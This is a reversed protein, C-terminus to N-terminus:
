ILERCKLVEGTISLTGCVIIAKNNDSSKSLSIADMLASKVDTRAEADIGKEIFLEALKDRSLARPNKSEVTYVYYATPALIEIMKDYEKDALVSIIYIFKDNTFYKELSERLRKWADENHAGDVILYPDRNIVSFRADWATNELGDAIHEVTIGDMTLLAEIATVANLIQYYTGINIKYDTGKYIFESGEIGESIIDLQDIDPCILKVDECESYKEIIDMSEKIQPYSILSSGRKVIGLKENTIESINEGLVNMHDMSISSLINLAENGFVNTADLRGGMGCEILMIDCNWKNFLLFAAATEIEFATAKSGMEEDIDRVISIVESVEDKSAWRHNVQWRERYNYITPSIYRGVKMGARILTEEIYAMISGKGNTGAIHIAPISKHPNGLRFLLGNITELGFVSGLKEKEKIYKITDTYDM